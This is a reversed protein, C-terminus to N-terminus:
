DVVSASPRRSRGNSKGSPQSRQRQTQREAAASSPRRSRGNSRGSQRRGSASPRGKRGRRSSPRHSRGNSRGSQRRGSASPRGKRGRRARARSGPRHSRGSGSDRAAVEPAPDSPESEHPRQLSPSAGGLCATHNLHCAAAKTSQPLVAAHVGTLLKRVCFPAQLLNLLGNLVQGVPVPLLGPWRVRGVICYRASSISVFSRSSAM